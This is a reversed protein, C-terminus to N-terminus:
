TENLDRKEDEEMEGVENWQEDPDTEEQADLWESFNEM